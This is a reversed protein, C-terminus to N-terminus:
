RQEEQARKNSLPLPNCGTHASLFFDRPSRDELWCVVCSTNERKFHKQKPVSLVHAPFRCVLSMAADGSSLLQNKGKVSVAFSAFICKPLSPVEQPSSICNCLLTVVQLRLVTSSSSCTPWHCEATARLRFGPCFFSACCKM